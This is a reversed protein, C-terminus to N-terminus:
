GEAAAKCHQVVEARSSVGLKRFISRLQNAVTRVSCGRAEAIEANSQGTLLGCAVSREAPTLCSPPAIEPVPFSFMVYDDGEVGFTAAELGSPVLPHDSPRRRKASTPRTAERQPLVRTLETISRLGLKHLGCQLRSSVTSPAVSLEYAIVKGCHGVACMALVLREDPTLAGPEVVEPDNRRALLYRKGDHDTAEILSCHGDVLTRWLAVAGEPAREQLGADTRDLRRAAEILLSGSREGRAPALARRLRLGAAIHRGLRAMLSATRPPFRTVAAVPAGFAIRHPELEDVRALLLDAAGTKSLMVQTAPRNRYDRGVGGLAQSLSKCACGGYVPLVEDEDEVSAAGYTAEPMARPCNVFVPAYVRVNTGRTDLSYFTGFVGLGRGLVPELARVLRALWDEDAGSLDYAAHIVAASDRAVSKM